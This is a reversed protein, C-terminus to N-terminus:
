QKSLTTFYCKPPFFFHPLDSHLNHSHGFGSIILLWLDWNIEAFYLTVIYHTITWLEGTSRNLQLRPPHHPYNLPHSHQKWPKRSQQPPNLVRNHLSSSELPPHQFQEPDPHWEPIYNVYSDELSFGDVSTQSTIMFAMSNIKDCYFRHFGFPLFSLYLPVQLCIHLKTKWNLVNRIM